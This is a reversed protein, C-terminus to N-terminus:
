LYKLVNVLVSVTVAEFDFSNSSSLILGGDVDSLLLLELIFLMSLLIIHYDYWRHPLDTTRYM